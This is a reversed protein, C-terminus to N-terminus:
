PAVSRHRLRPAPTAAELISPHPRQPRPRAGGPRRTGLGPFRIAATPTKSGRAAIGRTGLCPLHRPQLLLSAAPTLFPPRRRPPSSAPSPALLRAVPTPAPAARRTLLRSAASCPAARCALRPRSAASYPAAQRALHLRRLGSRPGRPAVGRSDRSSAALASARLRATTVRTHIVAATTPFQPLQTSVRFRFCIYIM